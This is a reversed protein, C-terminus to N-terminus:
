NINLMLFISENMGFATGSGQNWSDFMSCAATHLKEKKSLLLLPLTFVMYQELQIREKGFYM